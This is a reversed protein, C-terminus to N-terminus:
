EGMLCKAAAALFDEYTTEGRGVSGADVLERARVMAARFDRAAADVFREIDDSGKATVRDFTLKVAEPILVTIAPGVAKLMAAVSDRKDDSALGLAYAYADDWELANFRAWEGANPAYTTVHIFAEGSRPNGTVIYFPERNDMHWVKGDVILFQGYHASIAGHAEDLTAAYLDHRNYNQVADFAPTGATHMETQGSWPLWPKYIAGDFIHLDETSDYGHIQFATPFEAAAISRINVNYEIDHPVNRPTRCRPPIVGTETWVAKVTVPFHTATATSM